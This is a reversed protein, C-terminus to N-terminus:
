RWFLRRYQYALLATGTALLTGIGTYFYPSSPLDDSSPTPLTALSLYAVAPLLAHPAVTNITSRSWSSLGYLITVPFLSLFAPSTLTNAAEYQFLETTEGVFQGTLLGLAAMVTLAFPLGNGFSNVREQLGRNSLYKLYLNELPFFTLTDIAMQATSGKLAGLIPNQGWLVSAAAGIAAGAPLSRTLQKQTLGFAPLAFFSVASATIISLSTAISKVSSKTQEPLATVNLYPYANFLSSLGTQGVVFLSSLTTQKMSKKIEEWAPGTARYIAPSCETFNCCLFKDKTITAHLGCDFLPIVCGDVITSNSSQAYCTGETIGFYGQLKKAASNGLEATKNYAVDRVYKSTNKAVETSYTLDEIIMSTNEIRSNVIKMLKIANTETEKYLALANTQISQWAGLINKRFLVLQHLIKATEKQLQGSKTKAKTRVTAIQQGINTEELFETTKVSILELTQNELSPTSANIQFQNAEFVEKAVTSALNRASEVIQTTNANNYASYLSSTINSLM